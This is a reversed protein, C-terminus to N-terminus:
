LNEHITKFALYMSEYRDKQSDLLTKNVTDSIVLVGASKIDLKKAYYCVSALEMELAILDNDYLEKKPKVFVSPISISKGSYYLIDKEDFISKIKHLFSYDPLAYSENECLKIIGDLAQIKSPIVFDGVKMESLMGFAAGFFIIEKSEGDKLVHVLDAAMSAGYVQFVLSCEKVNNKVIYREYLDNEHLLIKDFHNLIKDKLSNIGTGAFFYCRHPLINRKFEHKSWQGMNIKDELMEDLTGRNASTPAM